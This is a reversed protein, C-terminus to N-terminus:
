GGRDAVDIFLIFLIDSFDGYGCAWGSARLTLDFPSLRPAFDSRDIAARTGGIPLATRVGVRM